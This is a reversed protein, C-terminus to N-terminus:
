NGEALRYVHPNKRVGGGSRVFTGAATGATLVKNVIDNKLGVSERITAREVPETQEALFRKIAAEADRAEAETADMAEALGTAADITVITRPLDVEGRTEARVFHNHGRRTCEVLVDCCGRWAESGMVAIEGDEAVTAKGAHHLLIIFANTPRATQLLPEVALEVDSYKDTDKVRLLNQVHDIIIGDFGYQKIEGQLLAALEDGPMPPVYATFGIEDAIGWREFNRAVKLAGRELAFYKLRAKTSARNLFPAGQTLAFAKASVLSTKGSMARGFVGMVDGAYLIGDWFTKRAHRAEVERLYASATVLPAPEPAEQSDPSQTETRAGDQAEGAPSEAQAGDEHPRQRNPDYFETRGELAATITRERYYASDWKDRHLASRKFVRDIATADGGFWFGLMGCLALDAESQSPYLRHWDGSDYLQAFRDGNRSKRARELLEADDLTPGAGNHGNGNGASADPPPSEFEGFVARYFVEVQGQRPEVTRKAGPPLYGTLTLFRKDDYIEVGGLKHRSGAPLTASAFIHLGHGGPSVECYSDLLRVFEIARPHIVREDSRVHDLDVGVIGDGSKCVRGIGDFGGAQYAKLVTAFTSWTSPDTTSAPKGDPQYPPKTWKLNGKNDPRLEYRWLVFQSGAKLEAPIMAPMPKIATPRQPESLM